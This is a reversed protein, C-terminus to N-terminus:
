QGRAWSGRHIANLLSASGLYSGPALPPDLARARQGPHPLYPCPQPPTLNHCNRFLLRGLGPAILPPGVPLQDRGGHTLTGTAVGGLQRMLSAWVTAIVLSPLNDFDLGLLFLGLHGRTPAPPRRASLAGSQSYLQPGSRPSAPCHTPRCWGRTKKGTYHHLARWGGGKGAM